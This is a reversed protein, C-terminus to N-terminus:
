PVSAIRAPCSSASANTSSATAPQGRQTPQRVPPTTIVAYKADPPISDLTQTLRTCSTTSSTPNATASGKANPATPPKAPSRSAVSGPEYQLTQRPPAEPQIKRAM